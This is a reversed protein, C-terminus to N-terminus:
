RLMRKIKFHGISIGPIGRPVSQKVSFILVSEMLVFFSSDIVALPDLQACSHESFGISEIIMFYPIMILSLLVLTPM